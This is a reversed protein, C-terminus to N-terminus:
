YIESDPIKGEITQTRAIGYVRIYGSKAYIEFEVRVTGEKLEIKQGNYAWDQPTEKWLSPSAVQKGAGGIIKGNKDYCTYRYLSFPITQNGGTTQEFAVHIFAKNEKTVEPMLVTIPASVKIDATAASLLPRFAQMFQKTGNYDAAKSWQSYAAKKTDWEAFGLSYGAINSPKGKNGTRVNTATYLDMIDIYDCTMYSNDKYLFTDPDNVNGFTKEEDVTKEAKVNLVLAKLMESLNKHGVDTIKTNDQGFIGWNCVPIQGYPKKDVLLGVIDWTANHFDIFPVGYYEAIAQHYEGATIMPDPNNANQRYSNIEAAASSVVVVATNKTEALIKRVINEFVPARNKASGGFGDQVALDLVVIDPNQDIVDHKVRYVADESVIGPFSAEYSTVYGKAEADLWSTFRDAYGSDVGVNIGGLYCVKIDQTTNYMKNIFQKMRFNNAKVKGSEEKLIGAQIYEADEGMQINNARIQVPSLNSLPDDVEIDGFDDDWSDDWDDEWSDDEWDDYDDIIDSSVPAQDKPTCAAFSGVLMVLALLIALLKKM